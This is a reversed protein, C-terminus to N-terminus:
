TTYRMTYKVNKANHLMVLRRLLSAENGYFLLLLKKYINYSTIDTVDGGYCQQETQGSLLNKCFTKTGAGHIPEINDGGTEIGGRQRGRGEGVVGAGPQRGRM